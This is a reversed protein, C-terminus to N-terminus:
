LIRNIRCCKETGILNNAIKIKTRTAQLTTEIDVSEELQIITLDLIVRTLQEVTQKLVDSNFSLGDKMLVKLLQTAQERIQIIDRQYTNM